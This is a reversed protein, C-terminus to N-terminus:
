IACIDIITVRSFFSAGCEREVVAINSKIYGNRLEEEDDNFDLLQLGDMEILPRNEAIPIPEKSKDM